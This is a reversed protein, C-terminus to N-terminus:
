NMGQANHHTLPVVLRRRGNSIEWCEVLAPWPFEQLPVLMWGRRVTWGPLMELPDPGAVHRSWWRAILRRIASLM